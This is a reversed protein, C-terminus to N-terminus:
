PPLKLEVSVLNAANDVVMASENGECVVMRLCRKLGIKKEGLHTIKGLEYDYCFFILESLKSTRRNLILYPIGVFIFKSPVRKSVIIQFAYVPFLRHGLRKRLDMRRLVRLKTKKNLIKGCLISDLTLTYRSGVSVVFDREQNCVAIGHCDIKMPDLMKSIVLRANDLCRFKVEEDFNPNFEILSVFPCDNKGVLIKDSDILELATIKTFTSLSDFIRKTTKTKKDLLFVSKYLQNVILLNSDFPHRWLTRLNSGEPMTM